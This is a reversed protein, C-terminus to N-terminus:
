GRQHNTVGILDKRATSERGKVGRNELLRSTSTKSGTIVHYHTAKGKPDSETLLSSAYHRNHM